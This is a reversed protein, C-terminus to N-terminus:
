QGVSITDADRKIRSTSILHWIASRVLIEDSLGADKTANFLEAISIKGNHLTLIRMITKESEESDKVRATQAM